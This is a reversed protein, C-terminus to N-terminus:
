QYESPSSFHFGRGFLLRREHSMSSLDVGVTSLSADSSSSSPRTLSTPRVVMGSLPATDIGFQRLYDAGPILLDESIDTMTPSPPGSDHAEMNQALRMDSIVKQRAMEDFTYSSLASVDDTPLSNKRRSEELDAALFEPIEVLEESKRLSPSGHRRRLESQSNNGATTYGGNCSQGTNFVLSAADVVGSCSGFIQQVFSPSKENEDHPYEDWDFHNNAYTARVM